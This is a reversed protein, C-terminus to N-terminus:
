TGSGIKTQTKITSPMYVKPVVLYAAIQSICEFQYKICICEWKAIRIGKRGQNRVGLISCHARIFSRVGALPWNIEFPRKPIRLEGLFRVFFNSKVEINNTKTQKESSISSMLFM